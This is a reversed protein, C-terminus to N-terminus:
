NKENDIERKYYEYIMMCFNAVDIIEDQKLEKRSYNDKKCDFYEQLEEQLREELWEINCDEWGDKYDNRRLITEMEIAFKLVPLRCYRAARESELIEYDSM